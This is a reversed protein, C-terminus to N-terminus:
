KTSRPSSFLTRLRRLPDLRSESEQFVGEAAVGAGAGGGGIEGVGTVGEEGGDRRGSNPKKLCWNPLLRMKMQSYIKYNESESM